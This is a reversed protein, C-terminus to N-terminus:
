TFMAQCDQDARDGNIDVPEVTERIESAIKFYITKTEAAAIIALPEYLAVYRNDRSDVERLYLKDFFLNTHVDSASSSTM